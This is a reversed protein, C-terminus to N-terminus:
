NAGGVPSSAVSQIHFNDCKEWLDTWAKALSLRYQNASSFRATMINMEQHKQTIKCLSNQSTEWRHPQPNWEEPPYPVTNRYDTGSIGADSNDESVHPVSKGNRCCKM